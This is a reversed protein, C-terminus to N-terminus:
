FPPVTGYSAMNQPSIGQFKPRIYSKYITPVELWDTGSIKPQCSIITPVVRCEVTYKYKPGNLNVNIVQTGGIYAM